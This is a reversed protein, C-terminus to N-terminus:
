SHDVEPDDLPFSGEANTGWDEAFSRDTKHPDQHEYLLNYDPSMDADESEKCYAKFKLYVQYEKKNLRLKLLRENFKLITGDFKCLDCVDMSDVSIPAIRIKGKCKPCTDGIFYGVLDIEEATEGYKDTIPYNWAIQKVIRGVINVEARDRYDVSPSVIMWIEEAAKRPVALSKEFVQIQENNLDIVKSKILSDLQPLDATLNAKLDKYDKYGYSKSVLNRSMNLDIILPELKRQRSNAYQLLREAASDIIATDKFNLKM